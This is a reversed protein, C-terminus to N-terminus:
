AAAAGSEARQRTCIGRWSADADWASVSCGGSASYTTRVTGCVDACTSWSCGPGRSCARVSNPSWCGLQRCGASSTPYGPVGCTSCSSSCAVSRRPSGSVWDWSRQHVLLSARSRCARLPVRSRRWRQRFHTGAHSRSKRTPRGILVSYYRTPRNGSQVTTRWM